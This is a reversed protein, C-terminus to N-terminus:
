KISDRSRVFDYVGKGILLLGCLFVAFLLFYPGRVDEDARVVIDREADYNVEMSDLKATLRFYKSPVGLSYEKGRHRVFILHPQGLDGVRRVRRVVPVKIAPSHQQVSFDEENSEYIKYVIFILSTGLSVWTLLRILLLKM